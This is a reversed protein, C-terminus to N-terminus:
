APVMEKDRMPFRHQYMAKVFGAAVAAADGTVVGMGNTEVHAKALVKTGEGTAAIPKGHAFAESVFHVALGVKAVMAAGDGGPIFVGDYIVSPANPAPRDVKVSSGDSLKVTGANKSVIESMAGEAKLAAQVATVAAADSGAGVLIAVKRGKITPLPHDMSLAPSVKEAPPYKVRPQAKVTLGINEAVAHALKPSINILLNDLTRQKVDDIKCQNLEFSLAEIIHQQEWEAMSNFFMTAQSFHDNFSPSRGRVKNGDIREAYSHLAPTKTGEAHMPCGNALGNPFYAVKGKPIVQTSEADRENNHMPCTPRNIPLQAFNPGVRKLQTDLYSFLRGQLLPDNSFDIGPVIHGPSFAVQETEAFYNEPNRNLVLRGVPQVPVLEEPIIKTADLIDFDFLHEDAEPVLQVGFEWEPYDGMEISDWMQRRQFDPDAGTLKHSEDWVMSALGAKPKFHWKVFTSQGQANVWRYTHVGFGQMNGFTRPLARDSMVWMLMHSIEPMLSAFDYFTDHASQAQPIENDPEPKVAHILDPFKIADQIFFVPMDNGVMDWVGEDTYFKIAFGRVDRPTDPSGRSGAVTSFRTFVPTKKGKEAFLGARTYQTMPHTCEFYGHAAAGRAHVVREPIREHDFHNIKERLYLDEILSPGRIGARLQNNDDEVALGQNTTLQKGPEQYDRTLDRDKANADTPIINELM